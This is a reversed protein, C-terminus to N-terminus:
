IISVLVGGDVLTVDLLFRQLLRGLFKLVADLSQLTSLTVTASTDLAALFLDLRDFLTVGVFEDLLRERLGLGTEGFHLLSRSENFAHAVVFHLFLMEFM